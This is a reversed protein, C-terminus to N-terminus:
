KNGTVHYIDKSGSLTLQVACVRFDRTTYYEGSEVMEKLDLFQGPQMREWLLPDVKM